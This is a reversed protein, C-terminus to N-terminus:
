VCVEWNRTMGNAIVSFNIPFHTLSSNKMRFMRTKIFCLDVIGVLDPSSYGWQPGYLKLWLSHAVM